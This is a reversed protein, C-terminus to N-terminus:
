DQEGLKFLGSVREVAEDCSGSGGAQGRRKVEPVTEDEAVVDGHRIHFRDTRAVLAEIKASINTLGGQFNNIQM